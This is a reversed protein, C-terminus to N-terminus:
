IEKINNIGQRNLLEVSNIAQNVSKQIITDYLYHIM